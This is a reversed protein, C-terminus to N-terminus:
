ALNRLKFGILTPCLVFIFPSLFIKERTKRRRNDIEQQERLRKEREVNEIVREKRREGRGNNEEEKKRAGLLKDFLNKKEEFSQDNARDM